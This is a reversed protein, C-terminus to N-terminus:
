TGDIIVRCFDNQLKRVSRRLNNALFSFAYWKGNRAHIFGSLTRVSNLTGTKAFVRGRYSSQRLRKRMTGDVGSVALSELFCTRYKKGYVSVLVDTIASATVRNNRSLGSGDDIVVGQASMDLQKLTTLCAERGTTWSGPLQQNRFEAGLTKILQEAAHNDSQKGLLALVSSLATQHIIQVSLQNVQMSRDLVKLNGELHISEQDLVQMLSAGFYDTPDDVPLLAAPPTTNAQVLGKLLVVEGDPQRYASWLHKKGRGSTQINGRLRFRSYPPIMEVRADLGQTRAPHVAIAICNRSLSLAGIPSAFSRHLQDARWNPHVFQSDFKTADLVLNGRLVRIGRKKLQNVWQRFHFMPDKSVRISGITPDGSGIIVLDEGNLAIKTQFSYNEGLMELAAAMVLLKMNSAPIFSLQSNRRYVLQGGPLEAVQVGIKTSELNAHSLLSDIADALRLKSDALSRGSGVCTVLCVWVFIWKPSRVLRQHISLFM